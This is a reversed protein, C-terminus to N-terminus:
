QTMYLQTHLLVVHGFQKLLQQGQDRPLSQIWTTKHVLGIFQFAGVIASVHEAVKGRLLQDQLKSYSSIDEM